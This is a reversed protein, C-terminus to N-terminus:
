KSVSFILLSYKKKHNEPFDSPDVNFYVKKVNKSIKELIGKSTPHIDKQNNFAVGIAIIGGDKTVRIMESIAKDRDPSYRLVWGCILLDFSNNEYKINHIDGIDILPSYSHLDIAKINKSKFGYSRINFIESEFRPGISLVKADEKKLFILSSVPNLLWTSRQNKFSKFLLVIKKISLKENELIVNKEYDIAFNKAEENDKKIFKFKYFIFFYRFLCIFARFYSIKYFKNFM